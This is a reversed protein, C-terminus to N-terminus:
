KENKKFRRDIYRTIESLQSFERSANGSRVYFKESKTSQDSFKTFLPTDGKRINILCIEKGELLPFYFDLHETSYDSGYENNVISRLHLEFHDKNKERFTSYVLYSDIRSGLTVKAFFLTSVCQGIRAARLFLLSLMAHM